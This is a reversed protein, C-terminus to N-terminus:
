IGPPNGDCVAYLYGVAQSNELKFNNERQKRKFPKQQQEKLNTLRKGRLKWDIMLGLLTTKMPSM